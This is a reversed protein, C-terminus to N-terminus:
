RHLLLWHYLILRDLLVVIAEGFHQGLLQLLLHQLGLRLNGLHLELQITGTSGGSHPLHM